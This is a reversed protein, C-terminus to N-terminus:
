RPAWTSTPTLSATSSSEPEAEDTAVNDSIKTAWLERGQHSKGVSFGPRYRPPRRGRSRDGRCIETYSHYGENGSPFESAAAPTAAAPALAAVIALVLAASPSPLRRVRHPVPGHHAQAPSVSM